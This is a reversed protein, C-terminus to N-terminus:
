FQKGLFLYLSSDGSDAWGWALAAPGLATEAGVFLSSAYILDDVGADDRELWVNGAEASVGLYLPWKIGLTGESLDYTYVGAAFAKHSGVLSDRYFGSLNLFGGLSTFHVFSIGDSDITEFETRMFMSHQDWRTAGTWELHYVLSSEENTPQGDFTLDSRENLHSVEVLWKSGQTPFMPQDLSDYGLRAKAGHFTYDGIDSFDLSHNTRVDGGEFQYALEFQANIGINIGAGVLLNNRSREINTFPFEPVPTVSEWVEQEYEFQSRLYWQQSTELPLYLESRLRRNTGVSLENRWQAGFRTLNNMTFALDLSSSTPDEFNDELRLGLEFQHPGWSKGDTDVVLVRGDAREEIHADVREFENLAYVRAIANEIDDQELTQGPEVKLANLIQTESVWSDNDLEIAVLEGSGKRQWFRQVAKKQAAYALYDADSVALARIAEIQDNAAKEGRPIMEPMLDFDSTGVEGIEPVLLLDGEELLAVQQDRTLNTLYGTLQDVIDFVSNLEDKGKLPTGIDVAIVVDAGMEKVVNVPLNNAMGGDVLMRGDLEIPALAGPVTMSAQMALVLNGSDLVAESRDALDTAVTRLPIPLDDFSNLEPISGVSRRILSRMTQGQLAGKPFRVEGDRYGMKLPLPFDDQQQKHRYSLDQRPIDDDFGTNFDLTTLVTEIEDASYGLAYLGAVYAGMSTGAIYDVPVNNQELVRLVGVHAAGKAGGGSLVVGVTPREAAWTMMPLLLLCVCLRIM